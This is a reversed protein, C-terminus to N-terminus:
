GGASRARPPAARPRPCRRRRAGGRASIPAHSFRLAAPLPPGPPGPRACAEPLRRASQPSQQPQADHPDRQRHGRDHEGAVEDIEIVEDGAAEVAPAPIKGRVHVGARQFEVRAQREGGVAEGRFQLPEAVAVDRRGVLGAAVAPLAPADVDHAPGEAEPVARLFRLLCGNGEGAGADRRQAGRLRSASGSSRSSGSSIPLTNGASPSSRMMRSGPSTGASIGVASFTTSSRRKSSCGPISTM